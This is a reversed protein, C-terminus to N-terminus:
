RRAKNCFQCYGGGGAAWRHLGCRCATNRWVLSVPDSPLEAPREPAPPASARALEVFERLIAGQADLCLGVATQCDYDHDLYALFEASATGDRVFRCFENWHQPAVLERARTVHAPEAPPPTPEPAPEPAPAPNAADPVWGTGTAKDYRERWLTVARQYDTNTALHSLFEPEAKGHRAYALFEVRHEPPVLTNLEDDLTRREAAEAAEKRRKAKRKEMYREYKEQDEKCVAAMKALRGALEPPSAIIGIPNATDGPEMVVVRQVVPPRDGRVYIETLVTRDGGPAAPDVGTIHTKLAACAAEISPGHDAQYFRRVPPLSEGPREHRVEWGPTFSAGEILGTMAGDYQSMAAMLGNLAAPDADLPVVEVPKVTIDREASEWFEADRGAPCGAAEWLHYARTRIETERDKM